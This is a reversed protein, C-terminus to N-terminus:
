AGNNCFASWPAWSFPEIEVHSGAAVVEDGAVLHVICNAQVMSSYINSGQAGALAVSIQGDDSQGAVGRAFYHLDRKKEVDDTLVARLRGPPSADGALRRLAPRVYQEFCVASSVPNGPLGFVLSGNGQGFALPKGPRQLVRWFLIEVGAAELAPRVYDYAGVSVGGSILLIDGQLGRSIADSVSEQNDRAVDEFVVEAGAARCQASLGPGNSNRIQGPSLPSGDSVLEDGTALVAVTPRRYVDASECGLAALMGIVPPTVVRGAVLVRDGSRVDRGARRIHQGVGPAREFRVKADEGRPWGSTWEVPVVANAQDPVPAGTMVQICSGPTLPEQSQEGARVASQLRLERPVQMLDEARVAFGDMASNDFPPTDERAVVDRALVRGLLADRQVSEFSPVGVAGRIIRRAELVSIPDVMIM